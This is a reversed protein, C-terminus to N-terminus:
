TIIEGVNNNIWGSTAIKGAKIASPDPNCVGDTATYARYDSYHYAGVERLFDAYKYIWGGGCGYNNYPSATACDVMHQESLREPAVLTGSNAATAAISM